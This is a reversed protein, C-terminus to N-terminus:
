RARLRGHSMLQRPLAGVPLFTIGQTALADLVRAVEARNEDTQFILTRTALYQGDPTYFRATFTEVVHCDDAPM